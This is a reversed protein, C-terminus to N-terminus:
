ALMIFLLKCLQCHLLVHHMFVQMLNNRLDVGQHKICAILSPIGALETTSASSTATERLTFLRALLSSPLERGGRGISELAAQAIVLTAWHSPAKLQVVSTCNVADRLQVMGWIRQMSASIGHCGAECILLRLFLIHLEGVGIDEVFISIPVRAVGTTKVHGVAM